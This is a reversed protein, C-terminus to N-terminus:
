GQEITSQRAAGWSRQTETAYRVILRATVACPLCTSMRWQYGPHYRIRSLKQPKDFRLRIMQRGPYRARWCAGADKILAAEIPHGADESTVDVQALPEVDLWMAHDATPNGQDGPHIKQKRLQPTREGRIRFPTVNISMVATYVNAPLCRFPKTVRTDCILQNNGCPVRPTHPNVGCITM